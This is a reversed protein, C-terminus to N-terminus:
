SRAIAFGGLTLQLNPYLPFSDADVINTCPFFGSCFRTVMVFLSSHEPGFFGLSFITVVPCICAVTAVCSFCPVSVLASFGIFM